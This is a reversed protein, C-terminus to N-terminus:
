WFMLELEINNIELGNSRSSILRTEFILLISKIYFFLIYADNGFKLKTLKKTLNILVLRVYYNIMLKKTIFASKVHEM